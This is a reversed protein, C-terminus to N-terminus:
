APPLAPTEHVRGQEEIEEGTILSIVARRPAHRGPIDESPLLGAIQEALTVGLCEALQHLGRVPVGVAGATILLACVAHRM